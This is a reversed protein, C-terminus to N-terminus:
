KKRGRIESKPVVHLDARLANKKVHYKSIQAYSPANSAITTILPTKHGEHKVYTM